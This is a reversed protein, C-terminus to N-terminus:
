IKVVCRGGKVLFYGILCGLVNHMVDDTEAFGRKFYFQMTEISVSVICGILLVKWWTMNRFGCGLLLGIPVFAVVNMVNELLLQSRGEHIAEYSWFPRFDHKHKEHIPRFLVTSCM